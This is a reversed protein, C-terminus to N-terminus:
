RVRLSGRPETWHGGARLTGAVLEQVTGRPVTTRPDLVEDLPRRFVFRVVLHDAETAGGGTPPRAAPDRVTFRRAFQVINSTPRLAGPLLDDLLWSRCSFAGSGFWDAARTLADDVLAPELPGTEPVHVAHEGDEPLRAFQLRGIGVVDARLLGVLWGTSTGTGYTRVKRGVDLLTAATLDPPVGAAAFRDLAAPVLAVLVPLLEAVPTGPPVAPATSGTRLADAVASLLAPDPPGSAAPADIGLLAADRATSM